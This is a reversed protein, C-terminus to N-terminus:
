LLGLTYKNVAATLRLKIEEWSTNNYVDPDPETDAKEFDTLNHIIFGTDIQPFKQKFIKLMEDPQYQDLLTAIDWYNKKSKDAKRLLALTAPPVAKQHLM